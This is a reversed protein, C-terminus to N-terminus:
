QNRGGAPPPQAVARGLGVRKGAARENGPAHRFGRDALHGAVHQTNTWFRNDRIDKALLVTDRASRFRRIRPPRYTTM